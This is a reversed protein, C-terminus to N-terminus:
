DPESENASGRSALAYVGAGLALTALGALAQVPESFVMFGVSGLTAAVFVLPVVPEGPARRAPVAEASDGSEGEGVFLCCVTASSSVGLLFGVYLLLDRLEGVFFAALALGVQLGISVRPTPSRARLARPLLGDEAMQAYIRPGVMVMASISTLLGLGVIASLFRRAPLGGLQEAAIAGVEARGALQDIPASYLFVANLAVYLLVVGVTALWTARALTRRPERLEAAVYVAANWGSYAFSIWVLTVAFAALSPEVPAGAGPDGGAVASGSAAGLLGLGLFGLIAALKLLVAGNQVQLGPGREIGHILGAVVIASAGLAGPPWSGGFSDRAYAELGHAAVAIPATFGALLSTWGALFGALPHIRRSLYLYEGGNGPVRAALATYSLAGCLAIAGGVAWALLVVSRSGLDALAFGSTTFVGAGIMNGAVLAAASGVGIGRESDASM